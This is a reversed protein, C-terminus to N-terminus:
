AVRNGERWVMVPLPVGQVHKVRVLDARKGIKVSGRDDLGVICSPNLSVLKLAEHLPLSLKESILFAGNLLSAPVYDSSLADLLGRRTLEEASVNGSHSGGLMLNPAGAIVHMGKQRAAVAAVVTTPFESITFGEAHAQEVHAVTTDDHSALTLPRDRDRLMALLQQRNPEAYKRHCEQRRQIFEDIEAQSRFLKGELRPNTRNAFQRQGPTHDMFSVIRLAPRDAVRSFAALVDESSLEARIHLLHEARFMQYKRGTELAAITREVMEVGRAIATTSNGIALADFVTTIGAAAVQADHAVLAPMLPWAATPRPLVHHEVNDTHLEILGPILYDGEFDVGSPISVTGTRIDAIRGQRILVAGKVSETPMVVCANKLILESEM